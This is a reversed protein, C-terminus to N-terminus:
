SEQIYGDVPKDCHKGHELLGDVPRTIEERERDSWQDVYREM